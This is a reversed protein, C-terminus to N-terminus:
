NLNVDNIVWKINGDQVSKGFKKQLISQFGHTTLGLRM